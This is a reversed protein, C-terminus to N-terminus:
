LSLPCICAETSGAAMPIEESALMDDLTMQSLGDDSSDYSPAASTSRDNTDPTLGGSAEAPLREMVRLLAEFFRPDYVPDSHHTQFQEEFVSTGTTSGDATFDLVAPDLTLEDDHVPNPTSPRSGLDSDPEDVVVDGDVTLMAMREGPNPSSVLEASESVWLPPVDDIYALDETTPASLQPM